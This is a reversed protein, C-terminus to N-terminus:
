SRPPDDAADGGHGEVASGEGEGISTAERRLVAYSYRVPRTRRFSDVDTEKSLLFKLFSKGQFRCTQSIALLLLFHGASRKFFSGSIKRQVALQRIAREAMNNEWPIGDQNLFTFLSDRYREFRKRYVEAAESRYERGTINKNYFREVDKNFKRLHWARLGFRDIAEVMPVLLSQVEVAFAELEKDFPAKWLDDNIDRILHVLCKQQRCPVGDYGAYFDSVLVGKYGALVERVIDAERTETMRFAVHRGDTFVWVYHDVGEINIRTEDVHVFPSTRIARLLAAETPAYYEALYRLFNSVTGPSFGVGFLHETVQVLIRYPLRLVVRQYVTWAQFAHGFVQNGLRKLAPPEYHRHCKPCWGKKGVYRTVTKRCGSRTFALDTVTREAGGQDDFTLDGHGRPCRRKCPVCVTRGVKSPIVRHYTQHGPRAGRRRPEAEAETDGARIRVSRRQGDETADRLIREFQRHVEKGSETATQKPRHAFDVNPESAATEKIQVLRGVLIRVAECDERNYQLLAAKYPEERTAEWRHRWVLSMLGSAEPSTWAAGLFRGLVKLGNSRVPFYVRGYVSSAVNVLRDLLEQGRGHRKALTQFAKREYSGYHYVPADPLSAVRALFDEWMGAEGEPGDAWFSHYQADAGSGALLGILYFANREPVGEVDVFLEAPRRALEPLHEVYTKGTRLALAQVELSHRVTRRGKKRSRRPRHLHSLQRVTFIGKDHYKRLLKPTMRDLLSLNDEAEAKQLCTDRFPCSPCHKNLVVPPAAAPAETLARLIEVIRRVEKYKGALKVKCPRDGLLILTGSPPHRGQVEGLVLEQYALGLLDSRSARCTGIVKVAAYRFQGLRSSENVKTLFDYRAQLGDATLDADALVDRGTALDGRGGFPVVEGALRARHANRNAEARDRVILEYDHPGPNAQAGTMLLFAKRPCLSYAEVLDSTIITNTM